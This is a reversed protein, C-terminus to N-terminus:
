VYLKWKILREVEEKELYDEAGAKRREELQAPVTVLRYDDLQALTDLGDKSRRKSSSKILSPYRTLVEDFTAKTIDTVSLSM